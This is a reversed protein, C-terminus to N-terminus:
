EQEIIVTLGKELGSRPEDKSAINEAALMRQALDKDEGVRELIANITPERGTAPDPTQLWEALEHEGLESLNAEATVPTAAQGTKNIRDLEETTYFSHNSEGKQLAILGIQETTVVANRDVSTATVIDNGAADQQVVTYAFQLDRVMRTDGQDAYEGPSSYGSKLADYQVARGHLNAETM